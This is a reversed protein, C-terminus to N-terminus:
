SAGGFRHLALVTLVGTAIFTITAVISRPSFRGIGCVGHGSTCGAGLEVGVGVLVAATVARGLSGMVPAGIAGPVLMALVAGGAVLGLLFLVRWTGDEGKIPSLASSFIGSIGAIRGCSLLVISSAVGILVGGLLSAVPTFNSFTM